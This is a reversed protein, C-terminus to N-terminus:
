KQESKEEFYDEIKVEGYMETGYLEDKLQNSFLSIFKRKEDLIKKAVETNLRRNAKDCFGVEFNEIRDSLLNFYYPNNKDIWNSAMFISLVGIEDLVDADRVVKLCFDPEEEEKNSHREIIYLLRDPEKIYKCISQNRTLWDYVIDRGLLAHGERQHVRGIDHLIAALRTLIIEDQTLDHNECELIKKVYGEVRCSHLVVFEWGKRWPHYSEYRITKDKVYSVLFKKGIELIDENM